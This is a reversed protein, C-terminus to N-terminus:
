SAVMNSSALPWIDGKASLYIGALRLRAHAREAQAAGVYADSGARYRSDDADRLSEDPAVALATTMSPPPMKDREIISRWRAARSIVVADANEPRADFNGFGGAGALVHSIVLVFIVSRRWEYPRWRGRISDASIIRVGLRRSASM